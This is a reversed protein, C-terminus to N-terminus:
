LAKRIRAAIPELASEPQKLGPGPCRDYGLYRPIVHVHLHPITQGFGNNQVITFGDAQLGKLEARGIQRAARFVTALDSDDIELLNRAHSRKSIVLVHGPSIPTHDMFALVDRDEYVKTAPIEGRLIKAFTNNRDYPQEIAVAPPLATAPPPLPACALLFPAILDLVPM